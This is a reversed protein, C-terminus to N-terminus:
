MIFCAQINNTGTAFDGLLMHQYDETPQESGLAFNITIISEESLTPLVINSLIIWRAASMIVLRGTLILTAIMRNSLLALMM